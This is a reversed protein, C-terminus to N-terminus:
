TSLAPRKAAPSTALTPPPARTAAPLRLYGRAQGGQPLQLNGHTRTSPGEQHWHRLDGDWRSPQWECKQNSHQWHPM